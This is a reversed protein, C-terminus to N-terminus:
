PSNAERSVSDTLTDSSRLASGNYIYDNWKGKQKAKSRKLFETIKAACNKSNEYKYLSM